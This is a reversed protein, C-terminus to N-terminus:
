EYSAAIKIRRRDIESFTSYGACRSEAVIKRKRILNDTKVARFKAGFIKISPASIFACRSRDSMLRPAMAPRARASDHSLNLKEKL